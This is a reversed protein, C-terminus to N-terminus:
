NPEIFSSKNIGSIDKGRVEEVLKKNRSPSNQTILLEHGFGMQFSTQGAKLQEPFFGLICFEYRFALNEHIPVCVTEM